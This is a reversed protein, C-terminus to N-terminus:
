AKITTSCSTCSSLTLFIGPKTGTIYSTTTIGRKGSSRSPFHGGKMFIGTPTTMRSKLLVWSWSTPSMLPFQLFITSMTGSNMKAMPLRVKKDGRSMEMIEGVSMQGDFDVMVIDGEKLESLKLM